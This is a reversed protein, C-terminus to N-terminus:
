PLRWELAYVQESSTNRLLLLSDNPGLDFWSGFPGAARNVDSLDAVREMKRDVIAIRYIAPAEKWNTDFYVYRGDHSFDFYNISGRFLEAWTTTTTDYLMLRVPSTSETLIYRGDRSWVACCMGRSGPLESVAGSAVDFFRIGKELDNKDWPMGGYVLRAGDHSWFPSFEHDSPAAPLLQRPTGGEANVIYMKTGQGAVAATFAIQRGDPSWQPVGARLPPWTLQISATGDVRSRWLTGEPFRVYALWQGDRSPAVGEASLGSLFPVFEHSSANYRVLEGQSQRGIAFVSSGDRSPAAARMDIPGFTLQVPARRAAFLGRQERLAWLNSVGERDARFVYYRGDGTWSGGGERPTANWGPLLPRLREGSASVEWISSANGPETLDCRIVSGDPSWRLRQVRASVTVLRRAERGDPAAVFLELGSAYVIRDGRPSWAAASARVDGVRQVLGGAASVRWLEPDQERHASTPKAVLFESGDPSIDELLANELTIPLAVADGGKITLEVATARGATQETFFVRQGDTLLTSKARPSQSLQRTGVIRPVAAIDFTWTAVAAVAIIAAIAGLWIAWRFSSAARIADTTDAKPGVVTSDVSSSNLPAIFRYGVRPLTEIYRPADADDNLVDRLTGIAKNLSRDFDVYTDAGWLRQRLEDRTFVEAPRELLIALLQLPQPALRLRRGAKRLQRADLDLEFVGFAAVRRDIQPPMLQLEPACLDLM